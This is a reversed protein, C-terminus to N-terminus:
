WCFVLWVPSLSMMLSMQYSIITYKGGFFYCCFPQFYKVKLYPAPLLQPISKANGNTGEWATKLKIDM